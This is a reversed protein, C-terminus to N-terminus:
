IRRDLRQACRIYLLDDLRCGCCAVRPIGRGRLCLLSQWCDAQGRQYSRNEGQRLFGCTPGTGEFVEKRSMVMKVPHGTKKSLLAAVPELYIETKGGFGGGIEMPTVRIESVPIGLVDSTYDRVLFPGQTSCWIMLRGDENWLATCPHPEIYGQHVAKTYYEGEAIEDAESFGEEIDRMRHQVHRAINSIRETRTGLEETTLDGHLLPADEKMSGLVDLVPPLVEYEVEILEIAEEAIHPSTAAVGVVAHGKYLM